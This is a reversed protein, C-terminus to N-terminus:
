SGKFWRLRKVLLREIRETLESFEVVMEWPRESGDEYVILAGVRLPMTWPFITTPKIRLRPDAQQLQPNGSFIHRSRSLCLDHMSTAGYLGAAVYGADELRRLMRVMEKGWGGYESYNKILDPWPRSTYM